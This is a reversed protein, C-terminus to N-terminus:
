PALRGLDALCGFNVPEKLLRHLHRCGITVEISM